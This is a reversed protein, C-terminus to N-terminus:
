FQRACAVMVATKDIALQVWRRGFGCSPCLLLREPPLVHLLDETIFALEDLTQNRSGKVDVIGAVIELSGDVDSLLHRDSWQEPPSLELVVRDIRGTLHQVTPLLPRLVPSCGM